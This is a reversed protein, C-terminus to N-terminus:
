VTQRDADASAEGESAKQELSIRIDNKSAPDSPDVIQQISTNALGAQSLAARIEAVPPTQALRVTIVTGGRFDIGYAMGQKLVSAAGVVLLLLSLGVFYKAKGMWDVNVGRFFEM